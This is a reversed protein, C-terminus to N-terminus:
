EAQTDPDRERPTFNSSRSASWKGGDLESTLAHLYVEVGWYEKTTHYETFLLVPVKTFFTRDSGNTHIV